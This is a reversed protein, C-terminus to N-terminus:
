RPEDNKKRDRLALATTIKTVHQEIREMRAVIRFVLYFLLLLAGYIAADVGRGVGIALAFRSALNPYAAVLGVFSWFFFWFLFARAGMKKMRFQGVVRSIAFVVFLIILLTVIM